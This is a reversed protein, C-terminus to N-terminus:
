VVTCTNRTTFSRTVGTARHCLPVLYINLDWAGIFTESHSSTTNGGNIVHQHTLACSVLFIFRSLIKSSIQTVGSSSSSFGKLLIPQHTETTETKTLAFFLHNGKPEIM